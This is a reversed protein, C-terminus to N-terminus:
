TCTRQHLLFSVDKQPSMCLQSTSSCYQYSISISSLLRLNLLQSRGVASVVHLKQSPMGPCVRSSPNMNQVVSVSGSLLNLDLPSKRTYFLTLLRWVAQLQTENVGKSSSTQGASVAQDQHPGSSSSWCGVSPYPTRHHVRMVSVGSLEAPFHM